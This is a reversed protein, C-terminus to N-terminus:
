HHERSEASVTPSVSINPLRQWVTAGDRRTVLVDQKAAAGPLPPDFEGLGVDGCLLYMM